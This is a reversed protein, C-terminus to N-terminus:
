RFIDVHIQTGIRVAYEHIQTDKFVQPYIYVCMYINIYM